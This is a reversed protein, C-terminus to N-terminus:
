AKAKKRRKHVARLRSNAEYIKGRIERLREPVFALAKRKEMRRYQERFKKPNAERWRQQREREKKPNAKRWRQRRERGKTPNAKRWRRDKARRKKFSLEARAYEWPPASPQPEIMVAVSM